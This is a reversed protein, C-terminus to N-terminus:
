ESTEKNRMDHFDVTNRGVGLRPLRLPEGLPKLPKAWEDPMVEGKPWATHKHKDDWYLYTYEQNGEVWERGKLTLHPTFDNPDESIVREDYYAQAATMFEVSLDGNDTKCYYPAFVAPVVIYAPYAPSPKPPGKPEPTYPVATTGNICRYLPVDAPIPMGHMHITVMGGHLAIIPGKGNAALTAFYNTDECASCVVKKSYIHTNWVTKQTGCEVCEVVVMRNKESSKPPPMVIKWGGFVAGVVLTSKRGM